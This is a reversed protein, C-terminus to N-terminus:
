PQYMTFLLSSYQSITAKALLCHHLWVALFINIPIAPLLWLSKVCIKITFVPKLFSTDRFIAQKRIRMEITVMTIGPTITMTPHWRCPLTALGNGAVPQRQYHDGSPDGLLWCYCHCCWTTKCWQEVSVVSKTDTIKPSHYHWENWKRKLLRDIKQKRSLSSVEVM